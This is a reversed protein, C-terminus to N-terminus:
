HNRTSVNTDATLTNFQQRRTSTDKNIIINAHQNTIEKCSSFSFSFTHGQFSLGKFGLPEIHVAVKLM